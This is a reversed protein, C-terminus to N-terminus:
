PSNGWLAEYKLYEFSILSIIFEFGFSIASNTAHQHLKGLVTTLFIKAKLEAM